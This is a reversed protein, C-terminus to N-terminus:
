LAMLLICVFPNLVTLKLEFDNLVHENDHIWTWFSCIKFKSVVSIIRFIRQTTVKSKSDLRAHYSMLIVIIFAIIITINSIITRTITLAMPFQKIMIQLLRWKGGTQRWEVWYFNVSRTRSHSLWVGIEMISLLYNTTFFDEQM